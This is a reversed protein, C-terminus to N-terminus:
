MIGAARRMGTLRPSVHTFGAEVLTALLEDARGEIQRDWAQGGTTGEGLSEELLRRAVIGFRRINWIIARTEPGDPDLGLKASAWEKLVDTPVGGPGRGEEVFAFYTMDNLLVMWSRKEGVSMQLTFSDGLLGSFKTPHFYAAINSEQTEYANRVIEIAADGVFQFFQRKLTPFRRINDMYTQALEGWEHTDLRFRVM